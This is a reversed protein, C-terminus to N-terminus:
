TENSFKSFILTLERERGGKERRKQEAERNERPSVSCRVRVGGDDRQSRREAMTGGTCELGDLGTAAADSVGQEARARRAGVNAGRRASAAVAACARRRGHGPRQRGARAARGGWYWRGERTRRYFASSPGQERAARWQRAMTAGGGVCQGFGLEGASSGEAAGRRGRESRWGANGSRGEGNWGM